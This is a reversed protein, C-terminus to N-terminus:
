WDIGTADDADEEELKAGKERRKKENKEVEETQTGTPSVTTPPPTSAQV